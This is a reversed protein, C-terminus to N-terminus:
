GMVIAELNMLNAFEKLNETVDGYVLVVHHPVGEDLMLKIFDMNGYRMQVFMNSGKFIPKSNIAEGLGAFVKFNGEFHNLRAVTVIGPKLSTTQAIGEFVTELKPKQKSLNYSANGCHWFLLCNKEQILNVFDATWPTNGTMAYLLLMTLACDMDSECSAMVGEATLRGNALCMPTKRDMRFEPWCQPAYANIKKENIIKKIGLYIQSLKKSNEYDKELVNVLSNQVKIDSTIEEPKVDDVKSLIENMSVKNITTGFIRKIALEDFGAIEFGDPRSGFLGIRSEKLYVIARLTDLFIKLRGKTEEEDILGYIFSFKKRLNKFVTGSPMLGIMSGSLINRESLYEPLGWVLFPVNSNRVMEVMLNSLSFTGNFIIIADVNNSEFYKWTESAEDINTIADVYSCIKIDMKNRLFNQVENSISVAKDEAEKEFNGLMIVNAFGIRLKRFFSYVRDGKLKIKIFILNIYSQKLYKFNNIVNFLLNNGM